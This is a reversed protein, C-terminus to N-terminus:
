SLNESSDTPFAGSARHKFHPPPYPIISAGAFSAHAHKKFLGAPDRIFIYQQHQPYERQEHPKLAIVRHRLRLKEEEGRGRPQPGQAHRRQEDDARRLPLAITEGDPGAMQAHPQKQEHPGEGGHGRVIPRHAKQPGAPVGAIEGRHQIPEDEEAHGPQTRGPPAIHPGHGQGRPHAGEDRDDLQETEVGQAKERLPCIIIVFVDEPGPGEQAGHPVHAGERGMQTQGQRHRHGPGDARGVPPIPPEQQGRRQLRHHQHEAIHGGPKQGPPDRHQGGHGHQDPVAAPPFGGGTDGAADRQRTQRPQIEPGSGGAGQPLHAAHEM